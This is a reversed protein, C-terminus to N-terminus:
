EASEGPPLADPLSPTDQALAEPKHRLSMAKRLTMPNKEALRCFEQGFTGPRSHREDDNRVAPRV